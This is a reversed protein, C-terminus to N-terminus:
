STKVYFGGAGFDDPCVFLCVSLCFDLNKSAYLVCPDCGFVPLGDLNTNSRM